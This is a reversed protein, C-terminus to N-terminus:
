LYGEAIIFATASELLWSIASAARGMPSIFCQLRSMGFTTAMNHGYSIQLTAIDADAMM